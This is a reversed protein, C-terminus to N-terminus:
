WAPRASAPRRRWARARSCGGCSSASMPGAPAPRTDRSAGPRRRGPRPPAPAAREHRPRGARRDPAPLRRGDGSRRSTTSGAPWGTRPRGPRLHHPRRRLGQLGPAARAMAFAAMLEAEPADLGSCCCAAATRTTAAIAAPSRPGPPMAARIRCSGGTRISASRTSATSPAPSRRARRGAGAVQGPHGRAAPRPRDAPLRRGPMLVQASRSPACSPRITPTTSSWASSATSPRGNACAHLRPRPRGRLAAPALGAARGAPRDVPGKGTAQDLAEQGFRGDLLIGGDGRGDATMMRPARAGPAQLPPHAGPQRRRAACMEEFQARHDFAFALVQPWHAAATPPGTSRSSGACGRAAPSARQRQRPLGRARGLVPDGARLRPALGRLRRLCQRAPLMRDLPLDRLWGRLFGSMFADGAGSCTSCRSRSARARSARTSRRRSHRRSLGHLGHARAQGRDPAEPAAARVARIAAM